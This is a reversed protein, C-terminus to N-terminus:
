YRHSPPRGWLGMGRAKAQQEAARYRDRQEESLTPGDFYRAAGRKLQKLAADMGGIFVTGLVNGKADRRRYQLNVPKGALLMELSRKAARGAATDPSPASIGQLRVKYRVGTASILLLRDGSMIRGVRGDLLTDAVLPNLPLLVLLGGLLIQLPKTM